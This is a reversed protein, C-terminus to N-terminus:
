LAVSRGFQYPFRYASQVVLILVAESNIFVHSPFGAKILSREDLAAKPKGATNADRGGPILSRV